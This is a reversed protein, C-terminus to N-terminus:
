RLSGRHSLQFFIEIQSTIMSGANEAIKIYKSDPPVAPNVIVIDATKFDADIHGGLHYEIDLGSLKQLSAKIEDEDALDTVTVKAGARCTFVASDVGGAFRGLGMVLVKKGKFFGKNM